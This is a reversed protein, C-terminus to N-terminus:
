DVVGGGYNRDFDAQAEERLAEFVMNLRDMLERCTYSTTVHPALSLGTLRGDSNCVAYIDGVDATFTVSQQAALVAEWKEFNEKLDALVQDVLEKDTAPVPRTEHTEAM